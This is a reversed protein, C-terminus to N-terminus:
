KTLVIKTTASLRGSRLVAIYAGSPRDTMWTFTSQAPDLKYTELRRGDASYFTLTGSHGVPLSYHITPTSTLNGDVQITAPASVPTESVGSIDPQAYKIVLLDSDAGDDTTGAVWLNGYEDVDIAHAEEDAGADHTINWSVNGDHDFRIIRFDKDTGNHSYGAVYFYNEDVAIRFAQDDSGSDYLKEWHVSDQDCCSIWIDTDTGNDFTGTFFFLSSDTYTSFSNKQAVANYDDAASINVRIDFNARVIVTPPGGDPTNKQLILDTGGVAEPRAMGAGMPGAIDDPDAFMAVNYADTEPDTDQSRWQYLGDSDLKVTCMDKETGNDVTGGVYVNGNDTVAISHSKDGLLFSTAWVRHYNELLQTVYSYDDGDQYYGTAYVKDPSVVTGATAWTDNDMHRYFDDGGKNGYKDIDIVAMSYGADDQSAAFVWFNDNMQAGDVVNLFTVPDELITSWIEEPDDAIAPSISLCITVISLVLIRKM